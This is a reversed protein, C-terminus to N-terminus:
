CFKQGLSGWVMWKLLTETWKLLVNAGFQGLHDMEAFNKDMEAFLQGGWPCWIYLKLSKPGGGAGELVLTGPQHGPRHLSLLTLPIPTSQTQSQKSQSQKPDPKTQKPEAKARAQSAKTRNPNQSPKSQNQRPDPKPQKPDAKPRAQDAKTRSQAQTPKSQSQRPHPRAQKPEAKPRAQNAKPKTPNAKPKSQTQNPQGAWPLGLGVWGFCDAGSTKGVLNRKPAQPPGM